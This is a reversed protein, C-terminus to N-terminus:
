KPKSACQSVGASLESRVVTFAPTCCVRAQPSVAGAIRRRSTEPRTAGMSGMGTRPAQQTLSVTANGTQILEAEIVDHIGLFSSYQTVYGKVYVEHPLNEWNGLEIAEIIKKRIFLADSVNGFSLNKELRTAQLLPGIKSLDLPMKRRWGSGVWNHEYV